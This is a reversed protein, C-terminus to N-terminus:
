AIAKFPQELKYKMMHSLRINEDYTINSIWLKYIIKIWTNALCRLAHSHTLGKDRKEDYYRKAWLSRSTSAFAFNHMSDRFHHNCARRFKVTRFNGSQKTIPATGAQRQINKYSSFVERNDGFNVMLQAQLVDGCGPLSKFIEHDSHSKMLVGIKEEYFKLQKKLLLIQKVLSLAYESKAETIWDEVPIMPKNLKDWIKEIKYPASYSHKKLFGEFRNRTIRSAKKPTPYQM